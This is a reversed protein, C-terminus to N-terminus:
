IKRRIKAVNKYERLFILGKNNLCRILPSVETIYVTIEDKNRLSQIKPDLLLVTNLLEAKSVESDYNTIIKLKDSIDISNNEIIAKFVAHPYVVHECSNLLQVIESQVTASPVFQDGLQQLIKALLEGNTCDKLVSNIVNSTVTNIQINKILENNKIIMQSLIKSRSRCANFNSDNPDIIDNKVLVACVNDYKVEAPVLAIKFSKSLEEFMKLKDENDYSIQNCLYLILDRDTLEKHSLISYNLKLYKEQVDKSVSYEGILTRFNEWEPSFKEISYEVIEKQFGTVLLYKVNLKDIFRKKNDILLENNKLINEIAYQHEECKDMSLIINVVANINAKCYAVVAESGSSLIASFLAYKYEEQNLGFLDFVIFSLNEKNIEFNSNLALKNAINHVEESCRLQKLKCDLKLLVEIFENEVFKAIKDIVDIKNALYDSLVNNYNHKEITNIKCISLLKIIYKEKIGDSMDEAALVKATLANYRESLNTLLLEISNKGDVSDNIYSIIFKDSYEDGSSLYSLLKRKKYERAHSDFLYNLLDYNLVYRDEFRNIEIEQVVVDPKDLKLNYEIEEKALVRRIFARDSSSIVNNDVQLIYDLYDEAIYGNILLFRILEDNITQSFEKDQVLLKQLDINVFERKQKQKEAIKNNINEIQEKEGNNIKNEISELSEGLISEIQQKTLSRSDYVLHKDNAINKFTKINDLYEYNYYSQRGHTLVIGKILYKLSDFNNIWLKTALTKAITLEKIENDCEEIKETVKRNKEKFIEVLQGRGFQLEAFDSPRLNKYAILSFLKILNEPTKKIKVLNYYIIYDNIINNLVRKDQIFQTIENIFVDPLQLDKCNKDINEKLEDRANSVSLVPTLSLIFDFFKSRDGETEFLSDNVAYIFTVKQKVIESNNILFNIERLKSFLNLNNFRELDEIIVISVKTKHFFYLIEDIFTNLISQKNIDCFSAEIDKVKIKEIRFYYVTWFVFVIATLVCCGAYWYFNDGDSNPLKNLFELITCSLLVIFAILLFGFGLSFRRQNYNIGQIRSDPVRSKKVHFLFQQLISREVACEIDKVNAESVGKSDIDKDSANFNALSITITKEKPYKDKYTKILSSKGAGYPAIVGINCVDDAKIKHHIADVYKDYMEYDVVPSTSVLNGYFKQNAETM